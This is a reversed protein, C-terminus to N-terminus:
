KLDAYGTENSVSWKNPVTILILFLFMLISLLFAFMLEFIRERKWISVEAIKHLPFIDRYIDRFHLLANMGSFFCLLFLLLQWWPLTQWLPAFKTVFVIACYGDFLAFCVMAFLFSDDVSPIKCLLRFLINLFTTLAFVFIDLPPDMIVQFLFLLVIGVALL